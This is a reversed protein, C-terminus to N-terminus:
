RDSARWLAVSFRTARAAGRRHSPAASQRPRRQAAPRAAARPRHRPACWSRDAAPRSARAKKASAAPKARGTSQHHQRRPASGAAPAATSPPSAPRGATVNMLPMSAAALRAELQKVLARDVHPRVLDEFANAVQDFEDQCQEARKEPLYKKTVVYGFVKADSGYAMCLVNYMRQAPTGHVDAFATLTRSATANQKAETLYAYATGMILRPAFAKGFQLYIYAAVQDAADEERGFVPLQLMDFLAHGAEHLSTDILPGVITDIPEIGAPTKQAPMKDRLDAIYEYCITIVDEEYFADAEGDCGSLLVKLTRPLRFPSLLVQLRELVRAEKLRGALQEHAPNKPRVYEISVRNSKGEALATTASAAIMLLCCLGLRLTTRMVGGNPCSAM